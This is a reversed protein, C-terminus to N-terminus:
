KPVIPAISSWPEWTNDEDNWYKWKVLVKRARGKKKNDKVIKEVKFLTGDYDKSVLQLEEEYWTGAEIENNHRHKIRYMVVPLHTLIEAIEYVYPKFQKYYGKDFKKNYASIRVHDGINFKPKNPKISKAKYNVKRYYSEVANLVKIYNEPMEAERPSMKIIRHYRKNYIDLIAQIHNIYTETQNEEMWRYLLNQYSRNFREVHPAKGNALRLEINKGKLYGWFLRNQFEGGQDTLLAKELPQSRAHIKKYANLVPRADKSTLPEIWAFRTFTDIVVLLFKVNNNKEPLGGKLEILDAQFLERPNRVYIPNYVKPNKTERHITYTDLGALADRILSKSAKPFYRQVTNLGGFSYPKTGSTWGNRIQSKLSEQQKPPM